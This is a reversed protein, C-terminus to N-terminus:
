RGLMINPANPTARNNRLRNTQVMYTVPQEVEPDEPPAPFTHTM